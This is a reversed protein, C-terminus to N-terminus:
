RKGGERLGVIETWLTRCESRHDILGAERAYQEDAVGNGDAIGGGDSLFQGPLRVDM